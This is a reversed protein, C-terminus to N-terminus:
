NKPVDSGVLSELAKLDESIANVKSDDEALRQSLEIKRKNLSRNQKYWPVNNLEDLEQKHINRAKVYERLSNKTAALKSRLNVFGELSNLATALKEINERSGTVPLVIKDPSFSYKPQDLSLEFQAILRSLETNWDGTGEYNCVFTHTTQKNAARLEKPKSAPNRIRAKDSRRRIEHQMGLRERHLSEITEAESRTAKELEQKKTALVDVENTLAEKRSRLSEVERALPQLADTLTKIKDDLSELEIKQTLKAKESSNQLERIESELATKRSELSRVSATQNDINKQMESRVQLVRGMDQPTGCVDCFLANSDIFNHCFSCVKRQGTQSNALRLDGIAM